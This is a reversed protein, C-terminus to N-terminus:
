IVIWNMESVPRVLVFMDALVMGLRVGDPRWGLVELVRDQPMDSWRLKDKDGVWLRCALLPQGVSHHM